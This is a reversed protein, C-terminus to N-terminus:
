SLVGHMQIHKGIPRERKKAGGLPAVERGFEQKAKKLMNELQEESEPAVSQLLELAKNFTRMTETNGTQRIM